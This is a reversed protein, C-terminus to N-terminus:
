DRCRIGTLDKVLGPTLGTNIRSRIHDSQCGLGGLLFIRGEQKAGQVKEHPYKETYSLCPKADPM